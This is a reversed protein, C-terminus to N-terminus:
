HFTSDAMKVLITLYQFLNGAEMKEAGKLLIKLFFIFWTQFYGGERDGRIIGWNVSCEEGWCSREGSRYVNNGNTSM